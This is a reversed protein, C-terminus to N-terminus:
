SGRSFALGFMGKVVILDRAFKHRIECSENYDKGPVIFQEYGLRPSFETVAYFIVESLYELYTKEKPLFSAWSVEQSVAANLM